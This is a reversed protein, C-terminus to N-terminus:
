NLSRSALLPYRDRELCIVVHQLRMVVCPLHNHRDGCLWCGVNPHKAVRWAVSEGRAHPHRLVALPM